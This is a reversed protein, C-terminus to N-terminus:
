ARSDRTIRLVAAAEALERLTSLIGELSKLVAVAEGEQRRDEAERRRDKAERRRDKAERRRDEAERRRDEAERQQAQRNTEVGIITGSVAAADIM